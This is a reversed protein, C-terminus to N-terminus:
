KAGAAPQQPSRYEPQHGGELKVRRMEPRVRRPQGVTPDLWQAIRSIQIPERKRRGPRNGDPHQHLQAMGPQARRRQHDKSGDKPIEPELQAREPDQGTFPRPEFPERHWPLRRPYQDHSVRQNANRRQQRKM